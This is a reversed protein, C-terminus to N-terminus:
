GYTVFRIQEPNALHPIENFSALSAKSSGVFLRSISTNYVQLNLDFIKDPSLGLVQGIISSISGGSAVVLVRRGKTAAAEIALRAAVVREVFESWSEGCRALEDRSWTRLVLRLLRYYAKKDSGDKSLATVLENGPQYEIFRSVLTRFDYENLGSHVSRTPAPTAEMPELIGDLSEVHRVMDGCVAHHFMINRDSFYRGLIRAQQAGIGSLRDYNDGEFSAQGHRVLVIEGVSPEETSNLVTVQL